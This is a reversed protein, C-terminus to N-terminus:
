FFTQCNIQDYSYYTGDVKLPQSLINHNSVSFSGPTLRM